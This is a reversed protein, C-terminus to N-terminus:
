TIRGRTLDIVVLMFTVFSLFYFENVRFNHRRTPAVLADQLKTNTAVVLGFACALLLVGNVIWRGPSITVAELTGGSTLIAVLFGGNWVVVFTVLVWAKLSFYSRWELRLM